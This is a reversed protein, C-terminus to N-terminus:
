GVINRPGFDGGMADLAIKMPRDIQSKRNAFAFRFDATSAVTRSPLFLVFKEQSRIAASVAAM